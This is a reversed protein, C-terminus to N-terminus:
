IVVEKGLIERIENGTRKNVVNGFYRVCDDCCFHFGAHQVPRKSYMGCLKCPKGQSQSEMSCVLCRM